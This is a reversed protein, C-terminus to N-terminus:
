YGSNQTLNPNSLLASSPIPYINRDSNGVAAGDKYDWDRSFQDFRVLDTRRIWEVYMERGREALMDAESLSSLPSAKRLTRLENVDALAGASDGSRMKAEAKMLHADAYRFIIEHNRFSESTGPTGNYPHYKIVRIGEAEGNGYHGALEKTFVLDQGNRTKLKSGDAGYVQGVFMGYAIGWNDTANANSADPVWGRREEQGSDKANTSAPGEFSDYFEALTSFGNWGGGGNDPTQIYYHMGNWIRNGISLDTGFLITESDLASQFIEFFGDHLGFTPNISNVHEIVKAMDGSDATGSGNYVHATLYLRALAFHAASKSARKLDDDGAPLDPLAALADKFDQEVMAYAETRSMVNPNVDPGEDPTRFPVQGYLDMVWYMNFARYFKAQAVQAASANSRPDIIETANYIKENLSNWTGVVFSHTPTWTHSHLTRWVGNDGWDTGRTPVLQEDTSVEQLAFFGGQDGMMGYTSAALSTLASEVNSVGSFGGSTAASFVSDEEEIELDTCSVAIASSLLIVFISKTYNFMNMTLNLNLNNMIYYKKM